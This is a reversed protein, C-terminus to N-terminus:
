ELIAVFGGGPALRVMVAGTRDMESKEFDLRQPFRDADAADKWLSVTVKDPLGPIDALNMILESEVLNGPKGGVMVVRYPSYQGARVRAKEGTEDRGPLASLRAQFLNSGKAGLYMGAYSRLNAETVAAYLDKEVEVVFPLGVLNEWIMDSLRTKVFEEEQHTTFSKYDAMWAYADKGFNFETIEEIVLQEAQNHNEPFRYRFALGDNFARFEVQFIRRPASTEKLTLVVQNYHNTIESHKAAVPKWTESFSSKEIKRVVLNQGLLPAHSFQIGLRGPELVTRGDYTLSYRLNDGTTVKVVLRGDPSALRIEQPARSCASGSFLILFLLIRHIHKPDTKM